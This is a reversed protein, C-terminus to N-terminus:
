WFSGAARKPIASIKGEKLVTFGTKNTLASGDKKHNIISKFKWIKRDESKLQSYLNASFKNAMIKDTEGNEM